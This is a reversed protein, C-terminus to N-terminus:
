PLRLGLSPLAVEGAADTVRGIVATGPHHRHLAAVAETARDAPVV